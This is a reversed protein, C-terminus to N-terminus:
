HRVQHATVAGCTEINIMRAVSNIAQSNIDRRMRKVDQTIKLRDSDSQFFTEFGKSRRALARPLSGFTDVIDLLHLDDDHYLHQTAPMADRVQQWYDETFMGCGAALHYLLMGARWIDYAPAAYGLGLIEEPARETVPTAVAFLM